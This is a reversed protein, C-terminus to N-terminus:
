EEASRLSPLVEGGIVKVQGSATELLLNGSLDVGVPVGKTVREGSHIEVSKGNYYDAAMWEERFGAFGQREFEGMMAVLENVLVSLLANRDLSGEKLRSLDSYAQDIQMGAQEGIRTNIGIGIVAYCPGTVDGGVEVLIGGLKAGDILIDNPWKLSVGSYGLKELARLVAVGCALSLGELAAIGSEFVWALSLYINAGFPSVWKKGRRGRGNKQHEAVVLCSSRNEVLWAMADANTSETSLRVTVRDGLRRVADPSLKRELEGADLLELGGEIQYGKGTVAELEVGIEKLQRIHKWIAARSVGLLQGLAQGSHFEGDSLVNLIPLVTKLDDRL